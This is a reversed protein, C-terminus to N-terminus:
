KLAWHLAWISESLPATTEKRTLFPIPRLAADPDEPSRTPTLLPNDTM